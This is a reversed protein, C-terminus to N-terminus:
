HSWIAIVCEEVYDLIVLSEYLGKTSGDQMKFKVAPCKGNPSVALFDTPKADLDVEVILIPRAICSM